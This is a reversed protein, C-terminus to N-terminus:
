GVTYDALNWYQGALSSCAPWWGLALDEVLLRQLRRGTEVTLGQQQAQAM